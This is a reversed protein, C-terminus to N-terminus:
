SRRERKRQRNSDLAATEVARDRVAEASGDQILRAAEESGLEIIDGPEQTGGPGVRGVLM